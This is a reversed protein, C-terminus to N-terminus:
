LTPKPFTKLQFPWVKTELIYSDKLSYQPKRPEICKGGVFGLHLNREGHPLLVTGKSIQIVRMQRWFRLQSPQEWESAQVQEGPCHRSSLRNSYYVPLEKRCTTLIRVKLVSYVSFTNLSLDIFLHIYVHIHVGQILFM